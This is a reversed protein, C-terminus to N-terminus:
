RAWFYWAAAAALLVVVIGMPGRWWPRRELPDVSLPAAGHGLNERIRQRARAPAMVPTLDDAFRALREQWEAVQARDPSAPQTIQIGLAREAAALSDGDDAAHGALRELGEHLAHRAEDVPIGQRAALRPYDLGELYAIRVLGQATGDGRNGAVVTPPLPRERRHDMARDRAQTSLWAKPSLGSDGFQKADHWIRVYVQELAEEAERRDKLISLCLANLGASTTEYLMDFARRDGKAVRTVLDELMTQNTNQM